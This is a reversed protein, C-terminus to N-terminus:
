NGKWKTLNTEANLLNETRNKIEKDIAKKAADSQKQWYDVMCQKIQNPSLSFLDTNPLHSLTGNSDPCMLDGNSYTCGTNFGTLTRTYYECPSLVPREPREEGCAIQFPLTLHIAVRILLKVRPKMRPKM